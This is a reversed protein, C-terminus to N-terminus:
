RIGRGELTKEGEGEKVGDYIAILPCENGNGINKGNASPNNKKNFRRANTDHLSGEGLQDDTLDILDEVVEIDKTANNTDAVDELNGLTGIPEDEDSNNDGEGLRLPDFFNSTEIGPPGTPAAKAQTGVKGGDKPGRGNHTDKDEGQDKQNKMRQGTDQGNRQEM